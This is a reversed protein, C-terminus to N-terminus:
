GGFTDRWREIANKMGNIIDDAAPRIVRVDNLNKSGAPPPIETWLSQGKANVWVNAYEKDMLFELFLRAANPHPANKLVASPSIILLTGDTPYVVGLPNGKAISLLTPQGQGAGVLREGSTVMTTVDIISRGLQPRNKELQTFYDWGYLKNMEISWIGVFGSFGPHGLAVQNNWKPNLLDKWSQPAQEPKVKQTNYVIVILDGQTPYYYGDPDFKQLEPRLKANNVAAYQALHGQKKLTAYHGMDTTSFVDAQAAGAGLDQNLRQFAVQATTRIVNVKVGYKQTFLRGIEQSIDTPHQSTYWTLEGEKRAASEITALDARATATMVVLLLLAGFSRSGIGRM